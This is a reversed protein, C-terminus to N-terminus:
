APVQVRTRSAVDAAADAASPMVAIHNDILFDQRIRSAAKFAIRAASEALQRSPVEGRLEVMAPSGGWFPVHVTPAVSSRVFAREELLADSIRVELQVAEESRKRRYDMTKAILVLVAATVAIVAALALFDHQESGGPLGGAMPPTASPNTGQARAVRPALAAALILLETWVRKM